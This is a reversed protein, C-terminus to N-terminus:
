IGSKVNNFISSWLSSDDFDGSLYSERRGDGIKIMPLSRVNSDIRKRYDPSDVNVVNIKVMERIPKTSQKVRDIVPGCFHCTDSRYITVPVEPTGVPARMIMKQGAASSISCVKIGMKVKCKINKNKKLSPM